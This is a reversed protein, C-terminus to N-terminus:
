LSSSASAAAPGQGRERAPRAERDYYDVMDKPSLCSNSKRGLFYVGAAGDAAKHKALADLSRLWFFFLSSLTVLKTSIGMALLLYRISWVLVQGPGGHSGADIQEFHRFLWRHGSKTFRTFDYAGMHVQQMFPTEAYVLGDPKLVRFIEAVVQAPDLVHELVAQIWVADFVENHFPLRHGDAVLLTNASAYVDTGIVTVDPDGYLDQMGAGITGGGIVLIRPTGSAAKTLRLFQACRQASGSEDGSSTLRQLFARIGSQRSTQADHDAGSYASRGFISNEFDILVPQGSASPFGLRHYTCAPNACTWRATECINLESRCRPCCLIDELV